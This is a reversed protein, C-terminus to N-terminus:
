DIDSRSISTCAKLNVCRDRKGTVYQRAIDPHDTVVGDVKLRGDYYDFLADLSDFRPPLRDARFTYAHVDLGAEHAVAVFEPAQALRGLSVGVLDAYDAISAALDATLAQDKLLQVLRLKTLTRLEKLTDDDFSQIYARDNADRYGYEDLKRLLIGPFSKGATAHFSPKKLEVYVGVNRGTSRNMGQILEIEEALTPVQLIQTDAPFRRRFVPQGQENRREGVGLQKLEDLDFDIVYFHGDDRAREPFRHAVDTTYDLTIDHMVVLNNDRTLVVDQEIFDAGMAHAMAVAPLTHEPLYGSAGRHAIVLTDARAFATSFIFLFLWNGRM